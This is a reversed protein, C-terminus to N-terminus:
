AAAKGSILEGVRDVTAKARMSPPIMSRNMAIVSLCTLMEQFAIDRAVVMKKINQLEESMTELQILEENTM